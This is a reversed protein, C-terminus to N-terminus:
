CHIRVAGSGDVFVTHKDGAAVQVVNTPSSLQEPTTRDAGRARGTGTGSDGLGLQGKWNYGTAWAQSRLCLVCCLLLIVSTLVSIRLAFSACQLQWAVRSDDM